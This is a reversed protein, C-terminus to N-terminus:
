VSSNMRTNLLMSLFQKQEFLLAEEAQKRETIDISVGLTATMKGEVDFLPYTTFIALFKEGSKRVLTSEGTFGAKRQRMSE